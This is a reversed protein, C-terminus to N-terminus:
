ALPAVAQPAVLSQYLTNYPHSFPISIYPQPRLLAPTLTLLSSSIPDGGFEWLSLSQFIYVTPNYIVWNGVNVM